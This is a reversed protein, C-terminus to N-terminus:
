RRPGVGISAMGEPILDVPVGAAVVREYVKQTLALAPQGTPVDDMSSVRAKVSAERAKREEWQALQQELSIPEGALVAPVRHVLKRM